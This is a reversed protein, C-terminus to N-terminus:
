QTATNAKTKSAAQPPPSDEVGGGGGGGGGVMVDTEILVLAVERRVVWCSRNVATTCPVPFKLVASVHDTFPILPPSAAFPVTESM